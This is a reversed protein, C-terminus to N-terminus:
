DSLAERKKMFDLTLNAINRAAISETEMASVASEMANIYFFGEDIKFPPWEKMPSLVTYAKWEQHMRGKRNRFVKDFFPEELAQRSFVKYIPVEWDKAYATKAISVFPIGEREMTFITQPANSVNNFYSYDIEGAIFNAHVTQYERDMKLQYDPLTINALDLPCAIVVIDFTDKHGTATLVEYQLNGKLSINNIKTVSQNLRLSINNKDKLIAHIMRDNGGNVSYLDGGDLGAGALSVMDTFANINGDQHYNVRSICDVFEYVLDEKIGEKKFYEYSTQQTMDYLDIAKFLSEPTDYSIGQGLNTYVREWKPIMLKVLNSLDSLSMGYAWLMQITSKWSNSSTNLRFDTGDWIALTEAEGEGGHPKTKELEYTEMIDKLYHNSSHILTAGQEIMSGGLFDKKVRGGIRDEKEYITVQNNDPVAQNIFHVYSAGGIGSGIVAIKFEKENSLALPSLKIGSIESPVKKSNDSCSVILLLCIVYIIRIM